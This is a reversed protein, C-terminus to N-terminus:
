VGRGPRTVGSSSSGRQGKEEHDRRDTRDTSVGTLAGGGRFGHQFRPLANTKELHAMLQQALVREVVRSVAPLLSIPRYYRTERKNGKKKWAPRVEARKWEEPWRGEEVVRNVLEAIGGAVEERLERLIEM